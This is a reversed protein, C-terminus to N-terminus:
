AFQHQRKSVFKILASLSQLRSHFPICISSLELFTLFVLFNKFICSLIHFFCLVFFYQLPSLFSSLNSLCFLLLLFTLYLVPLFFIFFTPFPFLFFPFLFFSFLLYLLFSFLFFPFHFFLVFVFYFSSFYSLSLIILLLSCTIFYSFCCFISLIWYSAFHFFFSTLPFSSSFKKEICNSLLYSHFFFNPIFSSIFSIYLILIFISILFLFIM